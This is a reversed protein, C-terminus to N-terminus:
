DRYLEDAEDEEQLREEEGIRLGQDEENNDDDESEEPTRPGSGTGEDTSSGRQQSIYTEQRSRRLVIKLQEAETRQASSILTEDLAVQQELTTAM